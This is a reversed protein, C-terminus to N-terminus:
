INFLFKFRRIGSRVACFFNFLVHIEPITAPTLKYNRLIQVPTTIDNLTKTFLAHSNTRMQTQLFFYLRIGLSWWRFRGGGGGGGGHMRNFVNVKQTIEEKVSARSFAMGFCWCGELAQPTRIRSQVLLFTLSLRQFNEFERFLSNEHLRWKSTIINKTILKIKRILVITQFNRPICFLYLFSKVRAPQPPM